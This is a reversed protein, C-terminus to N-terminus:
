TNKFDIKLIKHNNKDLNILKIYTKDLILTKNKKIINNYNNKCKKKYETHKLKTM